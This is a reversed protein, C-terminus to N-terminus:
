RPNDGDACWWTVGNAGARICKAGHKPPIAADAQHPPWRPAVNRLGLGEMEM